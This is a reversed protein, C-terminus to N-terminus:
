AWEDCGEEGTEEVGCTVDAIGVVLATSGLFEKGCSAAGSVGVNGRGLGGALAVEFVVAEFNHACDLHLRPSLSSDCMMIRDAM